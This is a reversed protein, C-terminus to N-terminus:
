AGDLLVKMVKLSLNPLDNSRSPRTLALLVELKLSLLKLSLSENNGLAAIYSTVKFAEWTASYRPLPPRKNYARKLVRV